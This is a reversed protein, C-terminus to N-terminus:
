RGIQRNFLRGPVLDDDVELGRRRQADCHRWGHDGAGVLHDLSVARSHGAIVLAISLGPDASATARPHVQSKMLFSKPRPLGSGSPTAKWQASVQGTCPTNSFIVAGFVSVPRREFSVFAASSQSLDVALRGNM